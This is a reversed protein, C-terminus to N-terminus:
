HTYLGTQKTIKRKGNKEFGKTLQISLKMILYIAIHTLNKEFPMFLNCIDSFHLLILKCLLSLSNGEAHISIQSKVFQAKRSMFQVEHM